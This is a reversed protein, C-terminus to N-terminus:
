ASTGFIATPSMYLSGDADGLSAPASTGASAPKGDVTAVAIPPLDLSQVTPLGFADATSWFSSLSPYPELARGHTVTYGAGIAAVLPTSRLDVLPVGSIAAGAAGSPPTAFFDHAYGDDMARDSLPSDAVTATTDSEDADSLSSEASATGWGHIVSDIDDEDDNDVDSVSTLAVAEAALVPHVAAHAVITPEVVM